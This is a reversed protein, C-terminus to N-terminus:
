NEVNHMKPVHQVAAAYRSVNKSRLITLIDFRVLEKDM